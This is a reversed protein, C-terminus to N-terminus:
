GVVYIEAGRAGRGALGAAVMVAIEGAGQHLGAAADQFLFPRGRERQAGHRAFGADARRRGIVVELVLALQQLRDGLFAPHLEAGGDGLRPGLRRLRAVASM